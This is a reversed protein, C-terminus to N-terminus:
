YDIITSDLLFKEIGVYLIGNEDHWPIINDKIVVIKKFSDKILNYPRIEQLLKEEDGISFASQIYYKRSGDNVIFDIELNSKKSKGEKDKYNWEVFGIDVDFGRICLENYLINEMIHNEENQRFNLRANRLGIDTFYYKYPSGIYKRGKVDYRVAKSILFADALYDLYRAITDDTVKIGKKSAFTDSIKKPNTLSGTSSSIVDLLDDLLNKEKIHQRELIDNIYINEFLNKLYQSKEQHTNLSLLFPMGGYTFYTPWADNKDGQLTNYYEKFSLPYVRIEDGRGRFETLIDKSLMKSNSGTVYLDVNKRKMLGLLVDVFGITDDDLYPNKIAKVKQIEDLFVYYIKNEDILLSRIKKGLELPNRYRINEDDDLSLEIIQNPQIGISILYNHYIEFLLTSKGCRRIGTIVKIMGNEKKSILQKLYYDREIM